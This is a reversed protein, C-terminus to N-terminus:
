ESRSELRTIFRFADTQIMTFSVLGRFETFCLMKFKFLSRFESRAMEGILSENSWCRFVTKRRRLIKGALANPFNFKIQRIFRNESEEGRECRSTGHFIHIFCNSDWMPFFGNWVIWSTWRSLYLNVSTWKISLYVNTRIIWADHLHFPTLPHTRSSAEIEMETEDYPFHRPHPHQQADIPNASPNETLYWFM